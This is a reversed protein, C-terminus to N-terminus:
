QLSVLNSEFDMRDEMVVGRRVGDSGFALMIFLVATGEFFKYVVGCPRRERRYGMMVRLGRCKM